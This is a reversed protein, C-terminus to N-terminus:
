MPTTTTTSSKTTRTETEEHRVEERRRGGGGFFLCVARARTETQARRLLSGSGFRRSGSTRKPVAAPATGAGEGEAPVALIALRAALMATLLEAAPAAIERAAAAAAVAVAVADPPAVGVAVPFLVACRFRGERLLGLAEGSGGSCGGEEEEEKEEESGAGAKPLVEM